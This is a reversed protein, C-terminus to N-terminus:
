IRHLVLKLLFVIYLIPGRRFARRSFALHCFSSINRDYTLTWEVLKRTSASFLYGYLKNIERIKRQVLHQSKKLLHGADKISIFETAEIGCSNDGHQRYLIFSREDFIIRAGCLIALRYIWSDHIFLSSPRHATSLLAMPRNIVMTCGYAVAHWFLDFYDGFYTLHDERVLQLDKDVITKNSFYMQMENRDVMAENMLSLAAALKEKKWVDDQDAFAFYQIEPEQNIAWELLSLFSDKVGINECNQANVFCINSCKEIYSKLVEHTGDTSGDDRIFIKVDVGEQTLLSDLQEPLYSAGNYTSMIIAVTTKETM